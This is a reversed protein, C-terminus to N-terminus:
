NPRYFTYKGQGFSSLEGKKVLKKLYKSAQKSKKGTLREVDNGTIKNAKKAYNLIKELNKEANTKKAENAVALLSDLRKRFFYAGTLLDAQKINEPWPKKNDAANLAETNIKLAKNKNM